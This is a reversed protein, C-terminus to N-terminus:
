SPAGEQQELATLRRAEDASDCRTGGASIYGIIRAPSGVVLAHDPVDRTVVSGSGTMAWHGIEVGTVIVTRAGLAAGSRVVTHGLVWDDTTKLTGNPNIARPYLDNTFVVHPGIFVGDEITVGEYLSCNNQIKVRSGVHVDTDIFCNRGVICESGLVAGPRVQCLSWVKTGEGIIASDAVEATPHVFVSMGLEGHGLDGHTVLSGIPPRVSRRHALSYAL